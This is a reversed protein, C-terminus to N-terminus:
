TGISQEEDNEAIRELLERLEEEVDVLSNYRGRLYHYEEVDKAGNMIAVQIDEKKEGIRKKLQESLWLISM